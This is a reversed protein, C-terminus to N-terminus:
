QISTLYLAGSLPLHYNTFVIRLIDAPKDGLPAVRYLESLQAWNISSQDYIWSFNKMSEKNLM